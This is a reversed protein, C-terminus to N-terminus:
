KINALDGRLAVGAIVAGAHCEYDTKSRYEVKHYYSVINTVASAGSKKARNHLAIIASQAVHQCAEADKKAFANTKKNVVIGRQLVRGQPGTGALYFKVSGDIKGAAQAAAVAEQFPLYVSRDAAFAPSSTALVLATPGILRTMKKMSKEPLFRM